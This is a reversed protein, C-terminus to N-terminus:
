GWSWSSGSCNRKSGSAESRNVFSRAREAELKLQQNENKLEEMARRQDELARHVQRRVEEQVLERPISGSSDADTAGGPPSGHLLPAQQPWRDMLRRAGAGFLPPDFVGGGTAGGEGQGTPMTTTQSYHPSTPQSTTHQVQEHQVMVGGEVGRTGVLQQRTLTTRTELAGQAGQVQARFFEGLRTMWALPSGRAAALSDPQPQGPREIFLRM